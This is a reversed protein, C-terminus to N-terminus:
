RAGCEVRLAFSPETVVLTFRGLDLPADWDTKIGPGGMSLDHVECPIPEGGPRVIVADMSVLYRPYKRM